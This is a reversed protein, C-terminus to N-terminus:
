SRATTVRSPHLPRPSRTNRVLVHLDHTPDVLTSGLNFPKQQVASTERTMWPKIQPVRGTDKFLDGFNRVCRGIVASVSHHTIELPSKVLDPILPAERRGLDDFAAVANKHRDVVPAPRLDPTSSSNRM